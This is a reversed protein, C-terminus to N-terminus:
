KEPAGKEMAGQSFGEPLLEGLTRVRIERGNGVMVRFDDACFERMVQRCVGCPMFFTKAEKGSEGGVIAISVFSRMSRWRPFM